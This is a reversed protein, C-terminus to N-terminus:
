TQGVYLLLNHVLKKFITDIWSAYRDFDVFGCRTWVALASCHVAICQLASCHVAVCQLASCRVAVFHLVSCRAAVFQLVGVCSEQWARIIHLSRTLTITETAAIVDSSSVEPRQQFLAWNFHPGKAFFVQFKLLRKWM